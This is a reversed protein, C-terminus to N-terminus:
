EHFQLSNLLPQWVPEAVQGQEERGPFETVWDTFVIWTDPRQPHPFIVHSYGPDRRLLIADHNNIVATEGEVFDYYVREMAAADGVVVEVNFPAVIVPADPDPPGGQSALYDAVAPPMLQWAAEVPWDDPTGPGNSNLSELVWAAPYSFSFGYEDSVYISQAASSDEATPAENPQGTDETISAIRGGTEDLTILLHKVCEPGFQLHIVATGEVVGPDVTFDQPIDQALLFPDFGGGEFGALMEDVHQEFDDALLPHDRYAKDVLPNRFDDGSRDGIYGLYWTYFTTAVGAPDHACTVNDIRWSDGEPQLDVTVLQNPFSSRFVVSAIGNRAFTVDPEIFTPINQACLFPDYGAGGFEALLEDIHQVFSETLYPTDHYAKDVLPNHFNETAPDGIYGLYFDYFARVVSDPTKLEVPPNTAPIEFPTVNDILWRGNEQVLHVVMPSPDPNGGWYRLVVVTAQTGNIAAEQVEFSIPIDQALLIPDYGGGEFGAITEDVRAVFGTTLYESDRYLGAALPNTFGGDSRDAMPALYWSYFNETVQQPSLDSASEPADAPEGPTSSDPATAPMEVATPVCGVVFLGVLLLFLFLNTMQQRYM